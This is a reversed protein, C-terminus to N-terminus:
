PKKQFLVFTSPCVEEALENSYEMELNDNPLFTYNVKYNEMCEQLNRSTLKLRFVLTTGCLNHIADPVTDSFGNQELMTSVTKNGLLREAVENFIACSTTATDDSIKINILYM